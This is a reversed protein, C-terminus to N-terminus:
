PKGVKHLKVLRILFTKSMQLQACKKMSAFQLANQIADKTGGLKDCINVNKGISVKGIEQLTHAFHEAINAEPGQLNAGERLADM